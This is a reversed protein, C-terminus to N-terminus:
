GWKNDMKACNGMWKAENGGVDLELRGDNIAVIERGMRWNLDFLQHGQNWRWKISEEGNGKM